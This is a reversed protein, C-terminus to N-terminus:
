SPMIANGGRRKKDYRASEIRRCGRCFRVGRSDREYMGVHGHSCENKLVRPKVGREKARRISRERECAYCRIRRGKTVKMEGVHGNACVREGVSNYDSSAPRGRPRTNFVGPMRAARVTWQWDEPLAAEGCQQQVPCTKCIAIAKKFKDNEALKHKAESYSSHEDLKLDMVTFMEPKGACAALELWSSEKEM